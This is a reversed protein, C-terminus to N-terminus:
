LYPSISGIFEIFLAGGVAAFVGGVIMAKLRLLAVDKGCAAVTQENERMARLARGFPSLDLRSLVWFGLAAIALVGACFVANYEVPPLNLVGALPQPVGTLGNWGNVVPTTNGALFWAIEGLVLTGIALYDSQLRRVAVFAIFVALAGGAVGAAAVPIPWPLTWGGIYQVVNGMGPPVPGIAALSAAYGGIAVLIYYCFNLIGAWGFQITLGMAMLANCGFYVLITLGYYLVATSM